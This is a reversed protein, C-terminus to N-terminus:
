DARLRLQPFALNELVRETRSTRKKQLESFHFTQFSLNKQNNIVRNSGQDKWFVLQWKLLRRFVGLKRRRLFPCLDLEFITDVHPNM